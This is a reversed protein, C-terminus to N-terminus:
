CCNVFRYPLFSERHAKAQECRCPRGNIMRGNGELIAREASEITQVCESQTSKNVRLILKTHISLLCVAHEQPGTSGQGL